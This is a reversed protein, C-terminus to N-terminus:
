FRVKLFLKLRRRDDIAEGDSGTGVRQLEFGLEVTEEILELVMLGTAAAHTKRAEPTRTLKLLDSPYPV